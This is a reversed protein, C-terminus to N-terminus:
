RFVKQMEEEFKKKLIEYKHKVEPNWAFIIDIKDQNLPREPTKALIKEYAFQEECFRIAINQQNKNFYHYGHYNSELTVKEAHTDLWLFENALLATVLCQRYSPNNDTWHEPDGSTERSRSHKIIQKFIDVSIKM